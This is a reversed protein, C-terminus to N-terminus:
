CAGRGFGFFSGSWFWLFCNFWFLNTEFVERLVGGARERLRTKAERAGRRSCHYYYCSRPLGVLGCLDMVPWRDTLANVIVFREMNTLGDFDVGPDKKLLGMAEKLVDVEMRLRKLERELERERPSPGSGRVVAPGVAEGDACTREDGAHKKEDRSMLAESGGGRYRRIWNYVATQAYGTTAALDAVREGGDVHRLVIARKLEWSPRFRREVGSMSVRAAPDRATAHPPRYGLWLYVTPLAPGGFERCAEAPSHGARVFARVQERFEESYRPVL